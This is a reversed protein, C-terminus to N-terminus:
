QCTVPRPGPFHWRRNQPSTFQSENFRGGHRRLWAVVSERLLPAGDVLTSTVPGAPAVVGDGGDAVFDSMLVTLKEDPRIRAGSTRTLQVDLKGAVCTADVSFGAIPLMEASIGLPRQLSYTVIRTLQDGTLPVTVLHNDFPYLEYMQGYTLPGAPLDIRLSGGNGLAADVGPVSALMGDTVFDAIATETKQDGRAFPTELVVGLPENKLAAATAVAPAIAAEVAKDAVVPRAEYQAPM